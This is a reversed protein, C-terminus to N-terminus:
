SNKITTRLCAECASENKLCSTDLVPGATARLPLPSPPPPYVQPPPAEPTVVSKTQIVMKEPSKFYLLAPGVGLPESAGWGSKFWGGAPQGTDKKMDLSPAKAAGEAAREQTHGPHAGGEGRGEVVVIVFLLM